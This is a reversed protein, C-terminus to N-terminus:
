TSEKEPFFILPMFFFTCEWHISFGFPRDLCFNPIYFYFLSFAIIILAHDTGFTVTIPESITVGILKQKIVQM